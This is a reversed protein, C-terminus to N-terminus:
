CCFAQGIFPSKNAIELFGKDQDLVDIKSFYQSLVDKAIRGTGTAVDLARLKKM